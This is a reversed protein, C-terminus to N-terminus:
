ISGDIINKGNIKQSNQKRINVDIFSCLKKQEHSLISYILFFERGIGWFYVKKKLKFCNLVKQKIIDFKQESESLYKNIKKKLISKNIRKQSKNKKKNLVIYLNSMPMNMAQMPYTTEEFEEIYYGIKDVLLSIHHIDFHQIHERLIFMFFPFMKYKKYEAANPIGIIIKGDLKTVRFAEELIEKPNIVHELFQDLVLLDFSNDHYPLNEANGINIKYVYKSKEKISDTLDFGSLNKYGKDGLYKLLGEGCGLDLIKSLQNSYKGVLKFCDDNRKKIVDNATTGSDLHDHETKYFKLINEENEKSLINFIHECNNCSVLQIFSYLYSHDFSPITFSKLKTFKDNSCIPCLGVNIDTNNKM